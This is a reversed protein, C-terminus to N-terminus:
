SYSFMSLQLGYGLRRGSWGALLLSSHSGEQGRASSAAGRPSQLFKSLGKKASDPICSKGRGGLGFTDEGDGNDCSDPAEICYPARSFWATIGKQSPRGKSFELM